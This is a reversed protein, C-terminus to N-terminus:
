CGRFTVRRGRPVGRVAPYMDELESTVLLRLSRVAVSDWDVPEPRHSLATGIFVQFLSISGPYDSAIRSAVRDCLTRPNDGLAECLAHVSEALRGVSSPQFEVPVLGSEIWGGVIIGITELEASRRSTSPAVRKSVGVFDAYLLDAQEALARLQASLRARRWDFVGAKYVLDHTAESWAYQTLTRVQLEFRRGYIGSTNGGIPVVRCALQWDDFRFVDPEKQRDKPGKATVVTVARPLEQICRPIDPLRPVVLSCAVLDDLDTRSFRGTELKQLYSELSKIRSSYLYQHRAAFGRLVEDVASKLAVLSDRSGEYEQILAARSFM